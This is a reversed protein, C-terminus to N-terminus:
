ISKPIGLVFCWNDGIIGSCLTEDVGLHPYFAGFTPVHSEIPQPILSCLILKFDFPILAYLVHGVVERLM